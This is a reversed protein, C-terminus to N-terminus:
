LAIKEIERDVVKKVRRRFDDCGTGVGYHLVFFLCLDNCFCEKCEVNSIEELTIEDKNM